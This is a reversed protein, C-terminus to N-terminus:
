DKPAVRHASLRVESFGTTGKLLYGWCKGFSSSISKRRERLFAEKIWLGLQRGQSNKRRKGLETVWEPVPVREM